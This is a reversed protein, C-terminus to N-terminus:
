QATLECSYAITTRGIPMGTWCLVLARWADRPRLQPQSNGTCPGPDNRLFIARKCEWICQTASPMGSSMSAGAGLFVLLPQDNSMGISRVMADISLTRM